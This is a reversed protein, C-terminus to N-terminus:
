RAESREPPLGASVSPQSVVGREFLMFSSSVFRRRRPGAGRNRGPQIGRLELPQAGQASGHLHLPALIQPRRGQMPQRGRHGGEIPLGPSLERAQRRIDILVLKRNVLVAGGAVRGLRQVLEPRQELIEPAIQKTELFLAM